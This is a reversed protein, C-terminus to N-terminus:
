GGSRASMAFRNAFRCLDEVYTKSGKVIFARAGAGLARTSTIYPDGSVMIVSADRNNKTLQDCLSMGSGDPLHEDIIVLAYGAVELLARAEAITAVCAVGYGNLIAKILECEDPNDEVCLVKKREDERVGETNPPM